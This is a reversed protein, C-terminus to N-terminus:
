GKSLPYIMGGPHVHINAFRRYFGVIDKNGRVSASLHGFGLKSVSM